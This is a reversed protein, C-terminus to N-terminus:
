QTDDISPRVENTHGTACTAARALLTTREQENHTLQAARTFYHHADQHQGATCYLDATVAALLHNDRMAPLEFLPTVIALGAQPGHARGVAVARNLEVVPSPTVHALRAYLDAIQHWDTEDPTRARAHCAAIAAQLAYPGNTGDLNHIRDLFALGRRILTQDWRNRNQDMLLIADGNPGTRAAFRSAQIEILALMGLTEPDNPTLAALMRGLRLAEDCLDSRMWHQGSTASYGENFV